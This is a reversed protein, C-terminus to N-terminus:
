PFVRAEGTGEADAAGAAATDAAARHDLLIQIARSHEERDDEHKVREQQQLDLKEPRLSSGETASNPPEEPTRM